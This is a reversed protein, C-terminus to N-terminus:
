APQDNMALLSDLAATRGAGNKFMVVCKAREPSGYAHGQKECTEDARSTMEAKQLFQMTEALSGGCAEFEVSVPLGMIDNCTQRVLAASSTDLGFTSPRTFSACGVMAVAPVILAATKMLRTFTSM